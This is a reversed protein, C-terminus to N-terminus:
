VERSKMLKDMLAKKKLNLIQRDTKIREVKVPLEMKEAFRDFLQNFLGKLQIYEFSNEIDMDKIYIM